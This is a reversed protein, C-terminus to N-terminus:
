RVSGGFTNKLIAKDHFEVGESFTEATKNFNSSKDFLVNELKKLGVNFKFNISKERM